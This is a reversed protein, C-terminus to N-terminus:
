NFKKGVKFEGKEPYINLNFKQETKEQATNQGFPILSKQNSSGKKQNVAVLVLVILFFTLPVVLYWKKTVKSLKSALSNIM